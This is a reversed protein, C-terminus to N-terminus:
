NDISPSANDWLVQFLHALTSYLHNSVTSVGVYGDEDRAHYALLIDEHDYLYLRGNIDRVRRISMIDIARNRVADELQRDDAILAKIDVGSAHKQNLLAHHHTLIREFSEPTTIMLIEEDSQETLEKCHELIFHRNPYSWSIDPADSSSTCKGASATQIFEEGLEHLADLRQAQQRQKYERYQKIAREPMVPGYKKPRGLQIRVFGKDELSDLIDYVRAQPVGATSATEKATSVGNQVLAVYTTSEYESLGMEQLYMTKSTM